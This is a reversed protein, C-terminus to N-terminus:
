RVMTTTVPVAKARMNRKTSYSWFTILRRMDAEVPSNRSYLASVARENNYIGTEIQTLIRSMPDALRFYYYSDAHVPVGVRNAIKKLREEDRSGEARLSMIIPSDFEVTLHFWSMMSVFWFEERSLNGNIRRTTLMDHLRRALNAIAADDTPDVGINNNFNAIGIWVEQLFEEWTSNFQSTPPTQSSTPSLSVM